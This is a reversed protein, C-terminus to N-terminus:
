RAAEQRELQRILAGLWELVTRPSALAHSARTPRRAGVIIGLGGSQRAAEFASEDTLDDGVMIPRRGQFPGTELLARLATGKDIGVPKLEAVCDGLQVMYLGSSAAAVEQALRRVAPGQRPATRFHLAFGIGSKEEIWAGKMDAIGEACARGIAAAVEPPPGALTKTGSRERRELGHLAGAPLVLPMLLRDVDVLCRGSLVALAGGLLPQLRELMRRTYADIRIMSPHAALEVLTGDIDIFLAWAEDASPLPPPELATHLQHERATM